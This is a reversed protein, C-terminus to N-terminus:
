QDDLKKLIIRNLEIARRECEQHSRKFDSSVRDFSYNINQLLNIQTQYTQKGLISISSEYNIGCVPININEVKLKRNAVDYIFPYGIGNDYDLCKERVYPKDYLSSLCQEESFPYFMPQFIQIGPEFNYGRILPLMVREIGPQVDIFLKGSEDIHFCDPFPFGIRRSFLYDFSINFLFYNNVRLAFCCPTLQFVFSDTGIFNIGEDRKLFRYIIVMRDRKGLREQIFFHPSISLPNKNLSYFLLWLGIRVKDLWDLLVSMNSVTLSNNEVLELIVKKANAELESFKNNCINCAPLTLQNFSFIREEKKDFDLGVRINRNLDGTYEILWKPIIHEKTKDIPSEGCFACYKGM